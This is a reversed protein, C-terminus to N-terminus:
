PDRSNLRKPDENTPVKRVIAHCTDEKIQIDWEIKDKHKLGLAKVV